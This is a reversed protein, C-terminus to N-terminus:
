RVRRLRARSYLAFDKGPEALEFIEELDDGGTLVWTERARWGAPINEIAETTFVWRTTGADTAPATFQNVFGEVHFQRLVFVNRTRDVSVFGIDEHTEGKDNRPQPPYVVRNRIEIFRGGLAPHYEREVTGEGPNGDSTGRWTGLLGALPKLPDAVTQAEPSYTACLVAVAVAAATRTTM